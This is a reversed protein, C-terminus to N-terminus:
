FFEEPSRAADTFSRISASNERICHRNQKIHNVGPHFALYNGRVERAMGFWCDSEGRAITCYYLYNIMQGCDYKHRIISM